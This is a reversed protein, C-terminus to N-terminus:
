RSLERYAESVELPAGVGLREHRALIEQATTGLDGSGKVRLAVDAEAMGSAIAVARRALSDAVGLEIGEYEPRLLGQSLYLVEPLETVGLPRVLEALIRRMELRKPTAELREYAAALEAFRM